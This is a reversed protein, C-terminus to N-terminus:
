REARGYPKLRYDTTILTRERGVRPAATSCSVRLRCRMTVCRHYKNGSESETRDAERWGLAGHTHSYQFSILNVNLM